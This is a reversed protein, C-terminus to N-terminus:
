QSKSEKYAEPLPMWAIVKDGTYWEKRKSGYTVCDAIKLGAFVVKTVIYKGDKAPLAFDIPIWNMKM